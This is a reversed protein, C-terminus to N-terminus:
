DVCVDNEMTISGEFDKYNGAPSLNYTSLMGRGSSGDMYGVVSGYVIGDSDSVAYYIPSTKDGITILKPYGRKNLKRAGTVTMKM